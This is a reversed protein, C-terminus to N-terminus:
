AAAKLEIHVGLDSLRRVLRKVINSHDRQDFYHAKLDKYPVGNRLM